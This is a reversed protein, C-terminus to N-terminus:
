ERPSGGGLSIKGIGKKRSNAAKLKRMYQDHADLESLSLNTVSKGASSASAYGDRIVEAAADLPTKETTEKSEKEM